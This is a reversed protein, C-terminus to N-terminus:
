VMAERCGDERLVLTEVSSRMARMTCIWALMQLSSDRLGEFCTLLRKVWRTFSQVGGDDMSM